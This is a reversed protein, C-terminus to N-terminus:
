GKCSGYRWGAGVLVELEPRKVEGDGWGLCGFFLLLHKIVKEIGVELGAGGLLAAVGLEVDFFV